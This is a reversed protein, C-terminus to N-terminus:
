DLDAEIGRGIGAEEVDCLLIRSGLRFLEHETFIIRHNALVDLELFALDLLPALKM